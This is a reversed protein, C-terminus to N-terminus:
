RVATKGVFAVRAQAAEIAQVAADVRTMAAGPEVKIEVVLPRGAARLAQVSPQLAAAEVPQGEFRYSGDAAVELLAHSVPAPVYCGALALLAAAAPALLLSRLNM